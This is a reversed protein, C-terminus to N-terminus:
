PFRKYIIKRPLFRVLWLTNGRIIAGIRYSKKGSKVYIRFHTDYGELKKLGTIQATTKARELQFLKEDLAQLLNKDKVRLM